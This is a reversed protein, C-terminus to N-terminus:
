IFTVETPQSLHFLDLRNENWQNVLQQLQERERNM